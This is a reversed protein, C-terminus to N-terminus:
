ITILPMKKAKLKQNMGAVGQMGGTHIALVRTNPPFYYSKILDMIGFLLKGTYVADLPIGSQERFENIFRILPENIKAYGGFDYGPQLAWNDRQAFKRIDKKLFKGKLVPFGLVQQRPGAANSLGALTGGTGVSCCIYNFELDAATLIEECGKVALPNTGGEPICYCPGFEKELQNIFSPNMKDRYLARSIFKFKMGASGAARLTPNRRWSDKLEDGRIIGVTKFGLESGAVATALIHNSYAGGFTLLSEFGAQRAYQLNYKLKRFKNGSLTPHLLDERKVSLSVKNRQLLPHLIEETHAEM